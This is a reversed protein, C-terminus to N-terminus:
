QGQQRYLGCYAQCGWGVELRGGALETARGLTNCLAVQEKGTWFQVSLAIDSATVSSLLAGVQSSGLLVPDLGNYQVSQMPQFGPPQPVQQQRAQQQGLSHM